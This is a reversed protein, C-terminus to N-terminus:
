FPMAACGMLTAYPTLEPGKAASRLAHWVVVGDKQCDEDTGASTAAWHVSAPLIYVSQFATFAPESHLFGTADGDHETQQQARAASNKYHVIINSVGTLITAYAAAQLRPRSPSATSLEQQRRHRQHQLFTIGGPRVCSDGPSIDSRGTDSEGIYIM